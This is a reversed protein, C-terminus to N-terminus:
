WYWFHPSVHTNCFHGIAPQPISKHVLIFCFAVTMCNASSCIALSLPQSPFHHSPALYLNIFDNCCNTSNQYIRCRLNPGHSLISWTNPEISNPFALCEQAEFLNGSSLLFDDMIPLVHPSISLSPDHTFHLALSASRLTLYGWCLLTGPTKCDILRTDVVGAKDECLDWFARAKGSPYFGM